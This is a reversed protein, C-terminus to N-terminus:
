ARLSADPFQTGKFSDFYKTQFTLQVNSSGTCLMKSVLGLATTARM